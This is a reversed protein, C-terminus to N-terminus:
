SRDGNGLDDVQSPVADGQQLIVDEVSDTYHPSHGAWKFQKMELEPDGVKLFDKNLVAFYSLNFTGGESCHGVKYLQVQSFVQNLHPDSRSTM